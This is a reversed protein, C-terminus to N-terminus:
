SLSRSFGSQRGSHASQRLISKATVGSVRRMRSSIWAAHSVDTGKGPMDFDHTGSFIKIFLSGALPSKFSLLSPTIHASIGSPICVRTKCPLIASFLEM